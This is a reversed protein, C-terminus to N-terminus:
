LDSFLIYIITGLLYNFNHTNKFDMQQNIMVKILGFHEKSAETETTKEKAQKEEAAGSALPPSSRIEALGASTALSAGNEIDSLLPAHTELSSCDAAGIMPEPKIEYLHPPIGTLCLSASSVPELAWSSRAFVGDGDGSGYQQHQHIYTPAAASASSWSGGFISSKAQLPCTEQGGHEGLAAAQEVGAAASPYRPAM